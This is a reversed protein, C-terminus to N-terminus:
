SNCFSGCVNEICFTRLAQCQPETFEPNSICQQFSIECNDLCEQCTTAISSVSFGVTFVLVALFLFAVKSKINM